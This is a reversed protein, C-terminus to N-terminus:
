KGASRHDLEAPIPDCSVEPSPIPAQLATAARRRELWPPRRRGREEGCRFRLWGMYNDAWWDDFTTGDLAGEVLPRYAADGHERGTMWEFLSLAGDEWRLTTSADFTWSGTNVYRGGPLDVVGPMHSHGCILVEWDSDALARAVPRFMDGPDGLESRLWYALEAEGRAGAQRDGLLRRLASLGRSGWIVKHLLWYALRNVLSYHHELPPRIWTGLAREVLHHVLTNLESQKLDPGILWDYEYGHQVLARDGIEVGAVVPFRLVYQFLQLDHDHNGYIYIMRGRDALESLARLVPGHARLIRAFTWGQAFDIADGAVVLTADEERIQDLLALLQRDKALFTDSPTGDGLHLDSIVYIVGEAPIRRIVRKVPSRSWGLVPM